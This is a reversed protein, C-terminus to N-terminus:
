TTAKCVHLSLAKVRALIFFVIDSFFQRAQVRNIKVGGPSVVITDGHLLAFEFNRPNSLLNTQPGSHASHTHSADFFLFRTRNSSSRQAFWDSKDNWGEGQYGRVKM